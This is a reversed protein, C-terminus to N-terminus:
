KIEVIRDFGRLDKYINCHLNPFFKSAIKKIRAGQNYNIELIIATKYDKNKLAIKKAVQQLLREILFHAKKGGYLALRPEHKISKEKSETASLYPLNALILTNRQLDIKSLLDSEIFSINRLTRKALINKANKKAIKLAKKSIDAFIFNRNKVAKAVSIGIAGSGCGIDIIQKPAYKKIYELAKEVLQETEPRPILVDKSVVFKENLFWKYGLLYALPFGSQLKKQMAQIKKFNATSIKTQPHAVLFGRPKKLVASLLIEDENTKALGGIQM